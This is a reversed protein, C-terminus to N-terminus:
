LYHNKEFEYKLDQYKYGLSLLVMLKIRVKQSPLDEGFIVGIERLYKESGRFGYTDTFFRGKLVRSTLVVPIGERIAEEVGDLMQEPVHGAGLCQLVIGNVKDNISNRITRSDTGLSCPIIDVKINEIDGVGYQELILPKKVWNVRKNDVTGIPGFEFSKFTDLRARHTKIAERATVIESSFVILVGMEGAKDDAAVRIADIINRVADSSVDSFNRQSGTLIIPINNNVTLDLFYATEEMTDTGHTIVVGDFGEKIVDLITKRLLMLDTFTMHASPINKFDIEEIIIEKKLEELSSLLGKAGISPNAFGEENVEMAITGGTSIFAIRKM